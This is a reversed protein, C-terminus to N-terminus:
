GNRGYLYAIKGNKEIKKILTLNYLNVAEELEKSDIGGVSYYVLDFKDPPPIKYKNIGLRLIDDKEVETVKLGKKVYGAWPLTLEHTQPCETLIISNPYNSEIFRAMEQHTEIVSFYELNEECPGCIPYVDGWWKTVFLALIIAIAFIYVARNKFVWTM